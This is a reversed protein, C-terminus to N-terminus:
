RANSWEWTQIDGEPSVGDNFDLGVVSRMVVRVNRKQTDLKRALVFASKQGTFSRDNDSLIIIESIADPIIVEELNGASICAYGPCGYEDMGSLVTELGEGVVL